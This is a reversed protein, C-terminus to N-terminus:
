PAVPAVNEPIEHRACWELIRGGDDPLKIELEIDRISLTTNWPESPEKQCRWVGNVPVQVPAYLMSLPFSHGLYVGRDSVSAFVRKYGYPQVLFRRVRSVVVDRGEYLDDPTPGTAAYRARLDHWVPGGRGDRGPYGIKLLIWPSVLFVVALPYFTQSRRPPRALVLLTLLGGLLLGVVFAKLAEGTTLYFSLACCAALVVAGRWRAAAEGRM